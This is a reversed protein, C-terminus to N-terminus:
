YGRKILADYWKKADANGQYAAKKFWKVAEVCDQNKGNRGYYDLGNRYWEEM